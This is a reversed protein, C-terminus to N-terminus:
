EEGKQYPLGLKLPPIGKRATTILVFLTLLYPLMIFFPYFAAAGSAQLRLQIADTATFLLAGWMVKWPDWKGFIVVCLAIFGKGATMNESFTGLIGITLYSGALGCMAGCILVSIYRVWAVSHGALDVALPNDGAAQNVLGFPTKRLLFMFVFVLFFGLYVLVNNQFFIPGIVPLKSLLGLNLPQLTPIRKPGLVRLLYSTVGQALFWLALGSIIQNMRLTVSVYAHILSLAVGSILGVLVGVWVNGSILTGYFGFFAGFLMYGEMGLNYVGARESVTEGLSAVLLAFTLQITAKAAAPIIWFM